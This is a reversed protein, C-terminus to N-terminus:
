TGILSLELCFSILMDQIYILNLFHVDIVLEYAEINQKGKINLLPTGLMLM